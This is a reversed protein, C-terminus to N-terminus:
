YFNSYSAVAGDTRSVTYIIAGDKIGEYGRFVLSPMGDIMTETVTMPITQLEVVWCDTKFDFYVDVTWEDPSLDKSITEAAERPTKAPEQIDDYRDNRKLRREKVTKDFSFDYKDKGFFSYKIGNDLVGENSEYFEFRNITIIEEDGNWGVIFGAENAFERLPIYARGDIVVVPMEPKCVNDNWLIEFGATCAELVTRASTNVINSNLISVIVAFAALVALAM